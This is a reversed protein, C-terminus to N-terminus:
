IKEKRSDKQQEQGPSQFWRHTKRKSRALKREVTVSEHSGLTFTNIRLESSNLVKTIKLSHM